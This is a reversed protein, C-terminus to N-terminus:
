STEKDGRRQKQAGRGRSVSKNEWSAIIKKEYSIVKSIRLPDMVRTERKLVVKAKKLLSSSVKLSFVMGGLFILVPCM